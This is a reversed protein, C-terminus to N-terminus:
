ERYVTETRNEGTLVKYRRVRFEGEVPSIPVLVTKVNRHVKLIAKGVEISGELLIAIDGIIEYSPAFGLIEEITKSKKITDFQEIIIEAGALALSEDVIPIYLFRDDSKIKLSTDMAGIEILKKRVTEGDSKPAKVCSSKM